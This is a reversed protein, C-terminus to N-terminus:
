SRAQAGTNLEIETYSFLRNNIQEVQTGFSIPGTINALKLYNNNLDYGRLGNLLRNLREAIDMIDPGASVTRCQSIPAGIIVVFYLIASLKAFLM